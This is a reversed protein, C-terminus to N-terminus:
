KKEEKWSFDFMELKRHIFDKLYLKKIENWKRIDNYFLSNCFISDHYINEQYSTLSDNRKVIVTNNQIDVNKIKHGSDYEEGYDLEEIVKNNQIIFNLIDKNSYQELIKLKRIFDEEPVEIKEIFIKEFCKPAKYKMVMLILYLEYAIINQVEVLEMKEFLLFNSYITNIDRLSLNYINALEKYTSSFTIQKFIGQINIERKLEYNILRNKELISDIYTDIDFKPLKSIYDFFRCLYGTADIENGYVSKVSCSLQTVDLAFVFVMNEIDFLHKIMELLEIAFTPKCRDLEDIFVVIQTKECVKKLNKKMSEISNSYEEYEKFFDYDISTNDIFRKCDGSEIVQKDIEEIIDESIIKSLQKKVFGKGIAKAVEKLDKGIKGFNNIDDTANFIKNELITYMLTEFPNKWLDNKWANYNIIVYNNNKINNMKDELMNLFTTKGTGWSSDIALVFSNTDSERKYRKNNTIIEILFDGFHERNLKDDEKFNM